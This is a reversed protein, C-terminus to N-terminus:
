NSSENLPFVATLNVLSVFDKLLLNVFLGISRTTGHMEGPCLGLVLTAFLTYDDSSM